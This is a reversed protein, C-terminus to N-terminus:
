EGSLDDRDSPHFRVLIRRPLFRRVIRRRDLYPILPDIDINPSEYLVSTTRFDLFSARITTTPFRWVLSLRLPAGGTRPVATLTEAPGYRAELAALLAAILLFQPKFM